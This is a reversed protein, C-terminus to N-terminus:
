TDSDAPPLGCYDIHKSAASTNGLMRIGNDVQYDLDGLRCDLQEAANRLIDLLLDDDQCEMQLTANEGSWIKIQRM